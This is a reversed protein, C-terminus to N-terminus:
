EMMASIDREKREDISKEIGKRIRENAKKVAEYVAESM